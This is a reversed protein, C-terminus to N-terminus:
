LGDLEKETTGVVFGDVEKSGSTFFEIDAFDGNAQKAVRVTKRFLRVFKKEDVSYM